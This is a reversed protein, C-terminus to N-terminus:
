AALAQMMADKVMRNISLVSAGATAEKLTLYYDTTAYTADYNKFDYAYGSGGVLASCNTFMYTSCTVSSMDWKSGIYITKLNSCDYFMGFSPDYPGSTSTVSSTDFCSLDLESISSCGSFMGSMNKVSATDLGELDLLIISSCSKFMGSMNTVNRTNFTSLDLETLLSCKYFMNSMDTVNSTDFQSLDIDTLSSCQSFMGDVRASSLFKKEGLNISSLSSCKYFMNNCTTVKGTDFSSVDISELATCDSFMGSMSTVNSTNFQSLDLSSLSNCYAFMSNMNNVRHTDLYTLNHIHQLNNMKQFWGSTSQPSIGRDVFTVSIIKDRYADWSKRTYGNNELDSYLESVTLGEFNSGVSPTSLRKYFNLSNDDASYVAFATRKDKGFTTGFSAQAKMDEDAVFEVIPDAVDGGEAIVAYSADEALEVDSFTVQSDAEATSTSAVSMPELRVIEYIEQAAISPDNVTVDTVFTAEPGGYLAAYAEDANAFGAAQVGKANVVVLQVLDSGSLADGAVNAYTVSDFLTPTTGRGLPSGYAYRYTVEGDGPVTAMLTWGENASFSFLETDAAANLTGDANATAVNRVPVSVEAFVYAQVGTLNEIAPDKEVTQTPLIGEAHDPVGDGDTDPHSDWKAEVVRIDLGQALSFRNTATDYSTLASLVAGVCLVVACALAVAAKRRTHTDRKTVQAM